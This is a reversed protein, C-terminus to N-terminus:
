YKIIVINCFFNSAAVGKDFMKAGYILFRPPHKAIKTETYITETFLELRFEFKDKNGLEKKKDHTFSSVWM